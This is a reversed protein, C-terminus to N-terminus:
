NEKLKLLIKRFFLDADLIKLLMFALILHRIIVFLSCLYLYNAATLGYLYTVDHMNYYFTITFFVILNSLELAYFVKKEFQPLLVFFPLLWLLYQPSFVKNFLLFILTLTFCFKITSEEQRFNWMLLISSTAILFLSLMNMRSISLGYHLFFDIAGWISDLNPPRLSNFSIFYYWGEFNSFMFFLNIILTTVGFVGIIKIWEAIEKKKLLLPFLYIIPYFKSSFGLALFLSALYDKDQKIASFAIIVLFVAIIDWNYILFFFMSPAFIWYIVLRKEDKKEPFQYLVFTAATAFLILFLSTQFYYGVYNEGLVGMFHIFFGTIVPYEILKDIYPLGPETAKGYFALIDSYAIHMPLKHLANVAHFYASLVGIFAILMLFVYVNEDKKIHM